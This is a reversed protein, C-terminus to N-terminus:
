SRRGSPDLRQPPRGSPPYPRAKSVANMASAHLADLLRNEDVWMARAVIRVRASLGKPPEDQVRHPVLIYLRAM